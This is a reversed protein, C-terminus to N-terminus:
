KFYFERLTPADERKLSFESDARNRALRGTLGTPGDEMWLRRRSGGRRVRGIWVGSTTAAHRVPYRLAANRKASTSRVPKLAGYCIM